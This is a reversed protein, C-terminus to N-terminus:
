ARARLFRDFLAGFRRPRREARDLAALLRPDRIGEAEFYERLWRFYWKRVAQYEQKGTTNVVSKEHVRYYTWTADSMVGCYRVWLKAQMAQDEYMSRLEDLWGGIERLADAAIIIDSPCPSPRSGLPYLELAMEPPAYLRRPRLGTRPTPDTIGPATWSRWYCPEGFLYRAEPFEQLLAVQEELKRPLWVDDADLQAIWAGRADALARNRSASIGRNSREPHEICVIKPSSRSYTEAISRTGDTSGDDVIILEWSSMTQALVSDVAEALFREGNYVPMLISVLPANM